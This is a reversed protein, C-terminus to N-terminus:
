LMPKAKSHRRPKPNKIPHLYTTPTQHTAKFNTFPFFFFQGLRLTQLLDLLQSSSSNMGFPVPTTMPTPDSWGDHGKHM